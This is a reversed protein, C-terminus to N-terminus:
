MMILYVCSCREASEDRELASEEKCASQTTLTLSGAGARCKTAPSHAKSRSLRSRPQTALGRAVVSRMVTDTPRPGAVM